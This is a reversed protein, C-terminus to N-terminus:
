QQPQSPEPLTFRCIAMPTFAKIIEATNIYITIEVQYVDVCRKPKTAESEKWCAESANVVGHCSCSLPMVPNALSGLCSCDILSPMNGSAPRPEPPLVSHIVEDEHVWGHRIHNLNGKGQTHPMALCWAMTLFSPGTSVRPYADTIQKSLVPVSVRLSIVM